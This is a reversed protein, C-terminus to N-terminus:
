SNSSQSQLPAAGSTVNLSGPLIQNYFSAARANPPVTFNVNPPVQANAAISWPVRVGSGPSHWGGM